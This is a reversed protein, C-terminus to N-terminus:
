KEIEEVGTGSFSELLGSRRGFVFPCLNVWGGCFYGKGGEGLILRDRTTETSM